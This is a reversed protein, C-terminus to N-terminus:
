ICMHSRIKEITLLQLQTTQTAVWQAGALVLISLVDAIFSLAVFYNKLLFIAPVVFTLILSCWCM